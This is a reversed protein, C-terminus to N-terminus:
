VAGKEQAVASCHDVFAGTIKKSFLKVKMASFSQPIKGFSQLMAYLGIQSM